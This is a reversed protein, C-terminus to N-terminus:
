ILNAKIRLRPLGSVMAQSTNNEGRMTLHSPEFSAGCSHRDLPRGARWECRATSARVVHLVLGLSHAGDQLVQTETETYRNNQNVLLAVVSVKPVM